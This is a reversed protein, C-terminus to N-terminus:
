KKIERQMYKERHIKNEKSLIKRETGNRKNIKETVPMQEEHKSVDQRSITSKTLKEFPKTEDPKTVKDRSAFRKNAKKLEKSMENREKGRQSNVLEAHPTNEINKEKTVSKRNKSSKTDQGYKGLDNPKTTLNDKEARKEYEIGAELLAAVMSDRHPTNMNELRKRNELCEASEPNNRNHSSKTPKSYGGLLGLDHNINTRARSEYSTSARRNTESMQSREKGKMKEIKELSGVNEDANVNNRNVVAKTEKSFAGLEDPNTRKNPRDEYTISARKNEDSMATRERGAMYTQYEMASLTDPTKPSLVSRQESSFTPRDLDGVDDQKTIVGEKEIRQKYKESENTLYQFTEDRQKPDASMGRYSDFGLDPDGGTGYLKYQEEREASLMISRKQALPTVPKTVKSRNEWKTRELSSERKSSSGFGSTPPSLPTSPPKKTPTKAAAGGYTTGGDLSTGKIEPKQKPKFQFYQKSRDLDESVSKRKDSFLDGYVEGSIRHSPRAQQHVDGVEEEKEAESISSMMSGSITEVQSSDEM